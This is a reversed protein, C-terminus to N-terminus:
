GSVFWAAVYGEVGDLDKVKLWQDQAGIKSAAGPELVLLEARLPLRKILNDAAVVGSSRLAVQDATTRVIQENSPAPAGGDPSPTKVGLAPNDVATVFWAAVYGEAGAIDRVKIWQGQAGLKKAAEGAPDLVKLQSTIALRKVLNASPDPQGRLALGDGTPAVILDGGTAGAAPGAGAPGGSPGATAPQGGQDTTMYWAAVYGQQGSPDQVHLWQNYQGVKALAQDRPDLVALAAKIPLREILLGSVDPSARLALDASTTSLTLVPTPVPLKAEAGTAPPAVGGAVPTGAMYIVGTISQELTPGAYHYRTMLKLAKGPADGPYRYPDLILYDGDARAYAVVWHSQAGPQPSWDVQLIVPLGGDLAANIAAVPAPANECNDRGQMRVGPFVAPVVAPKILAGMFGDNAKMKDNFTAPTEAHGYGNVVMTLSTMLCGWEKITPPGFGLPDSAWRDDNQWLLTSQFM